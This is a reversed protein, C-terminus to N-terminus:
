TKRESMSSICITPRINSTTGVKKGNCASNVVNLNKMWNVFHTMQNGYCKFGDMASGGFKRVSSM